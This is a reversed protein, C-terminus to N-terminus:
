VGVAAFPETKLLSLKHSKCLSCGKGALGGLAAALKIEARSPTPDFCVLLEYDVSEEYPAFPLVSRKYFEHNKRRLDEGITGQKIDADDSRFWDMLSASLSDLYPGNGAGSVALCGTGAKWVAEIKGQDTKLTGDSEERDAAIVAGGSTVLGIAITMRRRWPVPLLKPNRLLYKPPPVYKPPAHRSQLM